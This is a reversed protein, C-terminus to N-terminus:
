VGAREGDRRTMEELMACVARAAAFVDESLGSELWDLMMGVFTCKYVYTITEGDMGVPPRDRFAAQFYRQALQRCTLELGSLFQERPIYKYIHMVTRRKAMVTELFPQVCAIPSDPVYHEDVFRAAWGDLVTQFLDPIDRYHYYFTNRTVGCRDVIDKVTIKPFPKEELLECFAGQIQAKTREM